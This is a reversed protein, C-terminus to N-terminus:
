EDLYEAAPMSEPWMDDFVWEKKELSLVLEHAEGMEVIDSVTYMNNRRREIKHIPLVQMCCLNRALGALDRSNLLYRFM